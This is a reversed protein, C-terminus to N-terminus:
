EKLVHNGELEDGTFLYCSGRMPMPQLEVVSCDEFSVSNVMRSFPTRKEECTIRAM